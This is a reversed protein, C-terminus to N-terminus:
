IAALDRYTSRQTREENTSVRNAFIDKGLIHGGCAVDSMAHSYVSTFPPICNYLDRSYVHNISDRWFKLEVICYRDLPSPTDRVQAAAVSMQCHKTM